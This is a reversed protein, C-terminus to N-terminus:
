VLRHRGPGGADSSARDSPGPPTRRPTTRRAPRDRRPPTSSGRASV